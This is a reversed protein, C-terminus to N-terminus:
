VRPDWWFGRDKSSSLANKQCHLTLITFRNCKICHDPTTDCCRNRGLRESLVTLCTGWSLNSGLQKM